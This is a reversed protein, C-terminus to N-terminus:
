TLQKFIVSYHKCQHYEGLSGINSFDKFLSMKPWKKANKVGLVEAFIVEYCFDSAHTGPTLKRM